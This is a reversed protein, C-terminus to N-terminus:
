FKILAKAKITFPLDNNNQSINTQGDYSRKITELQSLLTSDTIETYTPTQLPYYITVNNSVLWAKFNDVSSYNTNKMFLNYNDSSVQLAFEGNVTGANIGSQIPNYKYYNSLGYGVIFKNNNLFAPLNFLNIGYQNSWDAESGDLVVKGIQKNVYWGTGYPEYPLATSGENIMPRITTIENATITSTNDANRLIIRMYALNSAYSSPVNITMDTAGNITGGVEYYQGIYQKNSNYLYINLFCYNTNQVSIHYNIDNLIPYYDITRIRTTLSVNGSRDISGQEWKDVQTPILNKGSSKDIKDRYDTNSIWGLFMGEPLTIPYSTSQTGNSVVISNDGSVVQIPVPNDPTPTGNQLTNGKYVLSMPAEETNNLTLTTGEGTVKDWNNWVVDTGNNIFYLLREQWTTKLNLINKDVNTLDAGALELINYANGIHATMENIRSVISM